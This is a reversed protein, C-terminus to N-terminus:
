SEIQNEQQMDQMEFIEECAQEGMEEMCGVSL